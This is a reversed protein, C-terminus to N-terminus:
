GNRKEQAKKLLEVRDLADRLASEVDDLMMSDFRDSRDGDETQAARLRADWPRLPIGPMVEIREATDPFALHLLPVGLAFALVSLEHLPIFDRRGTELNVITNRGIGGTGKVGRAQCWSVLDTQTLGAEKRLRAVESGIATTWPRAWSSESTSMHGNLALQGIFAVTTWQTLDSDALLTQDVTM